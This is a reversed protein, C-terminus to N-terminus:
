IYYHMFKRADTSRFPTSYHEKGNLVPNRLVGTELTQRSQRLAKCPVKGHSERRTLQVPVLYFQFKVSEGILM